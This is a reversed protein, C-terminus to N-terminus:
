CRSTGSSRSLCRPRTRMGRLHRRQLKRRRVSDGAGRRIEADAFDRERYQGKRQPVSHPHERLVQPGSVAAGPPRRYLHAPMTATHGSAARHIQQDAAWPRALAAAAAAAAGRPHERFECSRAPEFFRRHRHLQHGTAQQASAAGRRIEAGAGVSALLLFHHDADLARVISAGAALHRRYGRLHWHHRRDRHLRVAGPNRGADGSGRRRGARFGARSAACQGQGPGQRQFRRRRWIGAALAALLRGSGCGLELVRKGPPILFRMFKLDDEHYAANFKRWSDQGDLGTEVHELLERKRQNLVHPNSRSTESPNMATGSLM